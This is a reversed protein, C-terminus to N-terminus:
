ISKREEQQKIIKLGEAFTSMKIGCDTIKVNKLFAHLPRPAVGSFYSEFTTPSILKDSIDFTKAILKAADYPSCPQSGVVHYIGSAEISILKSIAVAIDDIFTPTFIQDTPSNITLGSHLRELIKHVFDPKGPGLARYPNAIRVVLGLNGTSIVSKEGLYKTLGYYSTPNPIDNENYFNQKGDFVFDTSIYLLHKNTKRCIKAIDQTAKVNIMWAGSSEGTSKDKECGDVDTKAAFHFVWKADSEGIYKELVDAKTIDIGTELSLNTFQYNSEMLEIVRSGVLGSLGTGIINM